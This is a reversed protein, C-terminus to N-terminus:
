ESQIHDISRILAPMVIYEMYMSLYECVDQITLLHPPLGLIANNKFLMSFDLPNNITHNTSTTFSLSYIYKADGNLHLSTLSGILKLFDHYQYTINSSWNKHEYLKIFDDICSKCETLNNIGKKNLNVHIFSDLLHLSPKIDEFFKRGPQTTSWIRFDNHGYNRLAGFKYGINSAHEIMKSKQSELAESKIVDMNSKIMQRTTKNQHWILILVGIVGVIGAIFSGLDTLTKYIGSISFIEILLAIVAGIPIVIILTTMFISFYEEKKM